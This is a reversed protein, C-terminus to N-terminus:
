MFQIVIRQLPPMFEEDPIFDPCYPAGFLTFHHSFWHGPINPLVLVGVGFAPRDPILCTCSFGMESLKLASCLLSGCRVTTLWKTKM